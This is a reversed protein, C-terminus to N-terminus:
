GAPINTGSHSIFTRASRRTRGAAAPQFEKREVRATTLLDNNEWHRVSGALQPDNEGTVIAEGKTV